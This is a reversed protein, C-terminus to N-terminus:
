INGEPVKSYGPFSDYWVAMEIDTGANTSGASIHQEERLVALQTHVSGISGQSRRCRVGAKRERHPERSDEYTNRVNHSDAATWSGSSVELRGSVKEFM